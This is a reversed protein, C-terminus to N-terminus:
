DTDKEIGTADSPWLVEIPSGMPLKTLGQNKRIKAEVTQQERLWAKDYLNSRLRAAVEKAGTDSPRLRACKDYTKIAKKFYTWDGTLIGLKQYIIGLGHGVYRSDWKTEDIVWQRNGSPDAGGDLQEEKEYDAFAKAQFQIGGKPPYVVPELIALAKRYNGERQMYLWALDFRHSPKTPNAQVARVYVDTGAEMWKKKQVPDDVAGYINWALHWGYISWAETFAPNLTVTSDYTNVMEYLKGHHFLVDAYNWMINAVMYRQGGLMAFVAPTGGGGNFVASFFSTGEGRPARWKWTCIYDDLPWRVIFLALALSALIIASRHRAQM